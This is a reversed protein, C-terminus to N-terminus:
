VLLRELLMGYNTVYVGSRDLVSLRRLIHSRNTMCGGCHVAFRYSALDEPLSDRGSVFTYELSFGLYRDLLFPIKVRGIDECSVQHSCSEIILVRDGLVLQDIYALGRRYLSVDGKLEALLISFSTVPCLDGVVGRVFDFAQSDTVVLRASCSALAAELESPQVVLALAGLDLASRVGQMQPLIMRGSPAESDIPCVLIVFDGSSIRGGYFDTSVLSASPVRSRILSFVEDASSPYCCRDIVIYPTSELRSVLDLELPDSCGGWTVIIALDIEMLTQYSKRVREQGLEGSDDLGATDIFTVPAYDLIEFRRRVPDTTTGRESSVISVDQGCLFNVFTSKGVNTLGYIGIKM